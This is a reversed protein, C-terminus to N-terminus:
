FLMVYAGGPKIKCKFGEDRLCLIHKKVSFKINDILTGRNLEYIGFAKWGIVHCCSLWTSMTLAVQKM